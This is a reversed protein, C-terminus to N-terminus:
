RRGVRGCRAGPQAQPREGAAQKPFVIQSPVAPTAPVMSAILPPEQPQNPDKLHHIYLGLFGNQHKISQGIEFRVWPRAATFRGILVVTVTTNELHRRIMQTIAQDGKRKADEYESHDFFGAVDPGAVVNAM